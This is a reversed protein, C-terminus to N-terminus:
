SLFARLEDLLEGYQTSRATAASLPRRVQAASPTRIARGARHFDICAADFPLGCFALLATIQTRADAVLLEYQQTRVHEPYRKASHDTFRVYDNFYTALEAFDYTYDARGPAFLQKYCSWCTELPDRRCDIVAAGPLMRRIADIRTWNDPLKDTFRPRD